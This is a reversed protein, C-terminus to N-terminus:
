RSFLEASEARTSERRITSVWALRERCNTDKLFYLSWVAFPVRSMLALLVVLGVPRGTYELFMLVRLAVILVFADQM